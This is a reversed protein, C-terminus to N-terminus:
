IRLVEVLRQVLTLPVRQADDNVRDGDAPLRRPDHLMAVAPMSGDEVDIRRVVDRVRDARGAGLRSRGPVKTRQSERLHVVAVAEDVRHGVPLRRRFVHDAAVDVTVDGPESRRERRATDTAPVAAQGHGTVATVLPVAEATVRLQRLLEIRLTAPDA